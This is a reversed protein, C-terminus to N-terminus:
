ICLELHIFTNGRPLLRLKSNQHKFILSESMWEYINIYVSFLCLKEYNNKLLVHHRIILSLLFLSNLVTVAFRICSQFVVWMWLTRRWYSSPWIRRYWDAPIGQFAPLSLTHIKREKQSSRLNLRRSEAVKLRSAWVSSCPLLSSYSLYM